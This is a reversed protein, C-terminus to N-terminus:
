NINDVIVTTQRNFNHLTQLDGDLAHTRLDPMEKSIAECGSLLLHSAFTWTDINDIFVNSTLECWQTNVTMQFSVVCMSLFGIM